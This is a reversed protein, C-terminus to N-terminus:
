SIPGERKRLIFLLLTVITISITERHFRELTPLRRTYSKTVEAATPEWAQVYM